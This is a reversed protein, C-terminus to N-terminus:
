RIPVKQGDIRKAIRRFAAAAGRTGTTLLPRGANLALSVRYDEPVYGLLRIGVHDVSDDLTIDSSRLLRRSIRNMILRLNQAGLERLAQATREADRSSCPDATALLLILDSYCAAEELFFGMGGPYDLLVYDYKQKLESLLGPLGERPTDPSPLLWLGSFDPVATLARELTVDGDLVDGYDLLVSDRIGLCLDLNHLERDADLCVVRRGLESLASALAAAATSKGTGGKGSLLSIVTGM